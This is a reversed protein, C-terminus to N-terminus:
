QKVSYIRYSQGFVPDIFEDYSFRSLFDVNITFHLDKAWTLEKITLLVYEIKRNKLIQEADPRGQYVSFLAEEYGDFSLGHTWITGPYGVFLRRGTLLVHSNHVPASMILSKPATKMRILDAFELDERSYVEQDPMATFLRYFDLASSLTLSVFLVVVAFRWKRGRQWGGVLLAAVFPISGLFWIYLVKINDWIWPALKLVNPVIFWLIFPIFFLLSDRSLRDKRRLRILAILLLPIFFGTNLFWYWVFNHQRKEWGFEWGFFKDAHVQGGATVLIIQPIALAAAIVMFVAWERWRRFVLALISASAMLAVYSHAHVLPMLGTIVGAAALIRTQREEPEARWRRLAEIWLIWVASLMPTALLMSRMPVFWYILSNNFRYLNEFSSYDHPLRALLAFLGGPATQAERFLMTWGLGGNFFLLVLALWGSAQSRALQWAFWVFLTVLAFAIFMNQLFFATSLSLGLKVLLAAYFDVIFPYTLKVGAMAPHEVPFNEGFVFGNIIGIHLALDAYNDLMRTIIARKREFVGYWFVFALFVMTAFGFALGVLSQKGPSSLSSKASRYCQHIDDIVNRHLKRTWVLPIVFSALVSSCISIASLGWVSALAFAILSVGVVGAVIAFALRVVFPPKYDILYTLLLGGASPLVFLALTIIARIIPSM